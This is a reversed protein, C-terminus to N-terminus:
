ILLISWDGSFIKRLGAINAGNLHHDLKTRTMLQLNLGFNTQIQKLEENGKHKNLNRTTQSM